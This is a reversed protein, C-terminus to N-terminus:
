CSVMMLNYSKHIPNSEEWQIFHLKGLVQGDQLPTNVGVKLNLAFEFRECFDEGTFDLIKENRELVEGLDHSAAFCGEVRVHIDGVRLYLRKSGSDAVLLPYNSPVSLPEGFKYVTVVLGFNGLTGCPQSMFAQFRVAIYRSRSTLQNYVNVAGLGLKQLPTWLFEFWSFHDIMFTAVELDSDECKEVKIVANGVPKWDSPHTSTSSDAESYWLELRAGPNRMAIATYHPIPISIQVPSDFGMGHPEMGICASAPTLSNSVRYSKDCYYVTSRICVSGISLNVSNSPIHIRFGPLEPVLLDGGVGSRLEISSSPYPYRAALAFLSFHFTEFMVRDEFIECKSNSDSELSAWEPTQYLKTDSCLPVLTMTRSNSSMTCHPLVIIAPQGEFRMGHPTIRVVPTILLENDSLHPHLSLDREEHIDVTVACDEPLYVQCLPSKVTEVYGNPIENSHFPPWTTAVTCEVDSTESSEADTSAGSDESSCSPYRPTSEYGSEFSGQNELVFRRLDSNSTSSSVRSRKRTSVNRSPGEVSGSCATDERSVDLPMPLPKVELFMRMKEVGERCIHKPINRIPNSLLLCKKLCPIRLLAIPICGIRNGSLNLKTLYMLKTIGSPCEEFDNRSLDLDQLKRPWRVSTVTNCLGCSKAYITELNVLDQCLFNLTHLSAISFSIDLTTILLGHPRCQKLVDSLLPPLDLKRLILEKSPKEETCSGLRRSTTPSPTLQNHISRKLKSAM